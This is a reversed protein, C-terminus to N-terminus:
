WLFVGGAGVAGLPLMSAALALHTNSRRTPIPPADITAPESRGTITGGITVGDGPRLPAIVARYVTQGDITDKTLECGGSAGLRGVNCKPDSLELGGVIIEMRKTELTEANGVVDLALQGSSLHASPYTYSLEYRHQGTITTNPDGVRIVLDNYQRSTSLRDPADPSSAQIDTPIGFDIPIIRQYGHKKATGFDQDVYETVRLSDTGTPVIVIQKADFQENLKPQGVVGLFGLASACLVTGGVAFHKWAPTGQLRAM